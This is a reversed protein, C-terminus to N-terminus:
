ATYKYGKVWVDQGINNVGVHTYVYGDSALITNTTLQRVIEVSTVYTM